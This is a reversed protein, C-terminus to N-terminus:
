EAPERALILGALETFGCLLTDLTTGLEFAEEEAVVSEQGSDLESALESGTM